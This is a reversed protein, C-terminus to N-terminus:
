DELAFIDGDFDGRFDIEDFRVEDIQQIDPFQFVVLVDMRAHEIAIGREEDHAAIIEYPFNAFFGTFKPSFHM